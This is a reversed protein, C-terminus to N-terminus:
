KLLLFYKINVSEVKQRDTFHDKMTINNQIEKIALSM